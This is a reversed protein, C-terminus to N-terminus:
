AGASGTPDGNNGTTDNTPSDNTLKWYSLYAELRRANSPDLGWKYEEPNPSLCYRKFKELIYDPSKDMLSGHEMLALFAVINKIEMKSETQNKGSKSRM